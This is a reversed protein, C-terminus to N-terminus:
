KLNFVLLAPDPMICKSNNCVMYSVESKIVLPAKDKLKVRQKFQAKSEFYKVRM